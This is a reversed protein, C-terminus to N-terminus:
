RGVTYAYPLISVPAIFPAVYVLYNGQMNFNNGLNAADIYLQGTEVTGVQDIPNITV